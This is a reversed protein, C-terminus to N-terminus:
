QIITECSIFTDMGPGGICVDTGGGGNLRDAGGGGLICDGGGGGVLDDPGATGLLLDNQSTGASRPAGSLVLGACAAPKLDNATIARVSQGVGSTPVVNGATLASGLSAVVLVVTAGAVLRGTLGRRM